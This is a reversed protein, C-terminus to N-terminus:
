EGEEFTIYNLDTGEIPIDLFWKLMNATESYREYRKNAGLWEDAYHKLKRDISFTTGNNILDHLKEYFYMRDDEADKKLQEYHKLERRIKEETTM